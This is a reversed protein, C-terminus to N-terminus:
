MLKKLEDVLTELVFDPPQKLKILSEILLSQKDKQQSFLITKRKKTECCVLILAGLQIHENHVIVSLKESPMIDVIGKFNIMHPSSYDVAM